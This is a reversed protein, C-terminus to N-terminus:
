KAKSTYILKVVDDVEDEDELKEFNSATVNQVAGCKLVNKLIGDLVKGTLNKIDNRNMCEGNICFDDDIDMVGTKNLELGKGKKNVIKLSGDSTFKILNDGISAQNKLVLGGKRNVKIGNKDHNMINLQGDEDVFIVGRLFNDKAKFVIGYTANKLDKDSGTGRVRIEPPRDGLYSNYKTYVTDVKSVETNLNQRAINKSELSQEISVKKSELNSKISNIESDLLYINNIKKILADIKAVKSKIANTSLNNITTPTGTSLNIITNTTPTGFSEILYSYNM